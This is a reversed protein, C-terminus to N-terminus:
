DKAAVRQFEGVVKLLDEETVYQPNSEDEGKKVGKTLGPIWSRGSSSGSVTPAPPPEAPAISSVTTPQDPTKEQEVTAVPAVPPVIPSPDPTKEQETRQSFDWKLAVSSDSSPPAVEPQSAPPAEVPPPAVSTTAREQPKSSSSWPVLRKASCGTAILLLGLSLLFVPLVQMRPKGGDLFLM